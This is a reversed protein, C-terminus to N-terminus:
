FYLVGCTPTVVTRLWFVDGRFLVKSVGHEIWNSRTPKHSRLGSPTYLNYRMTWLILV